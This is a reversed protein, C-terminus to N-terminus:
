QLDFHSAVKTVDIKFYSKVPQLVVRATLEWDVLNCQFVILRAEPKAVHQYSYNRILLSV